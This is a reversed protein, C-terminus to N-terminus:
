KRKREEQHAKIEEEYTKLDGYRRKALDIDSKSTKQTEKQFAHLVHIADSFKTVYVVRFAGSEDSVRIEYTGPGIDNMPKWSMPALGQQVRYIQFGATFKADDPFTSLDDKATGWFMVPKLPDSM